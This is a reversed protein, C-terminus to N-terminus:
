LKTVNVRGVSNVTIEYRKGRGDVLRITGAPTVTGNASFVIPSAAPTSTSDIMVYVPGTTSQLYTRAAPDMTWTGAAESREVIYSNPDSSADKNKFTFRYSRGWSVSKQRALRLDSAVQWAAGRLRYDQITGLVFPTAAATVIILVAVAILLEVATFGKQNKKLRIKM